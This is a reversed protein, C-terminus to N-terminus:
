ACNDIKVLILVCFLRLARDFGLAPAADENWAINGFGIEAILRHTLGDLRKALEIHQHVVGGELLVSGKFLQGFFVEVAFRM